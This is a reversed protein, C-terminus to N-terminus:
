SRCSPFLDHPNWGAQGKGLGALAVQSARRHRPCCACCGSRRVIAAEMVERDGESLLKRVARKTPERLSSGCPWPAAIGCRLCTPNRRTSFQSEPTDGIEGSHAPQRIATRSPKVSSDAAGAVPGLPPRGCGRQGGVNPLRSANEPRASPCDVLFWYGLLLCTLGLLLLLSEPIGTLAALWGEDTNSPVQLTGRLKLAFIPIAGLWRLPAVLGVGLVLSLPGPGFRRVALVCAIVTLYTVIVGAAVGVAVQWPQVLAAAAEMDGARLLRAFGGSGSWSTSSFRLVPHPIRIRRIGWLARTRSGVGRHPLRDRRWGGRGVM